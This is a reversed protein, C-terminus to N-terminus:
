IPKFWYVPYKEKTEQFGAKKYLALSALNDQQTNVTVRVAGRRNFQYLTDEVLCQGIGKGQSDPAVALRALHGGMPSATSIQYGVLRNGVEAVTAIAAQQFALELSELSNRWLVGFASADLDSVAQLDDFNMPRLVVQRDLNEPIPSSREWLLMIVNNIKKFSSSDLLERFWYQLPIAAVTIKKEENVLEKAEQWLRVWAEKRDFNSTVAFLRIWAIEPPDPPSILTAVLSGKQEAVLCPSFGVWDLPARWDLHRHVYTEFHILSALQKRDKEAAPRIILPIDSVM